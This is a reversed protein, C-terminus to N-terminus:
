VHHRPGYGLQDAPVVDKGWKRGDWYRFFRPEWPVPHWGPDLGRTAHAHTSGLREWYRAPLAAVRWLLKVQFFVGYVPVLAFLSDFWRYGVRVCVLAVLALAVFAVIVRTALGARVVDTSFALGLAVLGGFWALLLVVFRARM